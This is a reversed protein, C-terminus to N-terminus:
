RKTLTAILDQAAEKWFTVAHQQYEQNRPGIAPHLSYGWTPDFDCKYRKDGGPDQKRYEANLNFFWGESVPPWEFRLDAYARNCAWHPSIIKCKAGKKMVRHLENMLNIREVPKLYALAHIIEVSDVTGGAMLLKARLRAVDAVEFKLDTKKAAM